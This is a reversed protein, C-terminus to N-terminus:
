HSCTSVDYHGIDTMSDIGVHTMFDIGVYMMPEMVMDTM